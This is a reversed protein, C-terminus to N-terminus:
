HTQMLAASTATRCRPGPHIQWMRTSGGDSGSTQLGTGLHSLRPSPDREEATFLGRRTEEAPPCPCAGAHVVAARSLREKKGRVRRNHNRPTGEALEACARVQDLLRKPRRHEM